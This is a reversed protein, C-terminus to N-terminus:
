SAFWIGKERARVYRLGLLSKSRVEVCTPAAADHETHQHVVLKRLRDLVVGHEPIM